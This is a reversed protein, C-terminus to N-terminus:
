ARAWGRRGGFAPAPSPAAVKLRSFVSAKERKFAAGCVYSPAKRLLAVKKKSSSDVGGLELACAIRKLM